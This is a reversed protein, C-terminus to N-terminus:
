LDFEHASEVHERLARESDFQEGCICEHTRAAEHSMITEMDRLLIFRDTGNLSTPSPGFGDYPVSSPLRLPRDSPVGAYRYRFLCLSITDRYRM